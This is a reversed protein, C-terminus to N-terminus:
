RGPACPDRNPMEAQIPLVILKHRMGLEAWADM